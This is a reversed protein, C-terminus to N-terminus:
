KPQTVRKLSATYVRADKVLYKTSQWYENVFVMEDMENRMWKGNTSKRKKWKGYGYYTGGHGVPIAPAEKADYFSQGDREYIRCDGMKVFSIYNSQVPRGHKDVDTKPNSMRWAFNGNKSLTIGDHKM